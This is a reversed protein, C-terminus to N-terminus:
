FVVHKGRTNFEVASGSCRLTASSETLFFPRRPTWVEIRVSRGAHCRVDWVVDMSRANLGVVVGQASLPLGGSDQVMDPITSM